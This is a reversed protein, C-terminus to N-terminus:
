AAQTERNKGENVKLQRGYFDRGDLAKIAAAAGPADMEVFGFGRPRRTVRDTMIRVSRVTGYAAFLQQLEEKSTRYALNGVFISRSEGATPVAGTTDLRLAALVIGVFAGAAVGAAFLMAGGFRHSLLPFLLYGALALVAALILAAGFTDPAPFRVKM